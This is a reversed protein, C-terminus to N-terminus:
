SAEALSTLPSQLADIVAPALADALCACGAPSPHFGDEALLDPNRLFAESVRAKVDVFFAGPEADTVQQQVGHVREGYCFAAYRLPTSLVALSRFEPIGTVVIPAGSARTAEIVTRLDAAFRALPTLHTTDNAGVSVVVVDPAEGEELRPVQEAVVDAVRAGSRGLSRIRVPTDLAEAVRTALVFPVSATVSGAGVGSMVSDGLAVVRLPSTEERGSAPPPVVADLGEAVSPLRPITRLRQRESVAWAGLAATGVVAGGILRQM